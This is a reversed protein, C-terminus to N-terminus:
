KMHWETARVFTHHSITLYNALLSCACMSFNHILGDGDSHIFRLSLSFFNYHLCIELVCSSKGEDVIWHGAYIIYLTSCHSLNTQIHMKRHEITYSANRKSKGNNKDLYVFRRGFLAASSTSKNENSHKHTTLCAARMMTARIYVVDLHVYKPDSLFLQSTFITDPTSDCPPLHFSDIRYQRSRLLWQRSSNNSNFNPICIVILMIEWYITKTRTKSIWQKRPQAYATSVLSSSFVMGLTHTHTHTVRRRSEVM